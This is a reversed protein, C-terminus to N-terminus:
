RRNKARQAKGARKAKPQKGKPAGSRGGRGGASDNGKKQNRPFQSFDNTSKSTNSKSFRKPGGFGYKKNKAERGDSEGDRDRKRKGSNNVIADLEEDNDNIGNGGKENQNKRKKWQKVAELTEKKQQTRQKLKEAQIEKAVKRHAQSKKREEVASIKKQEYILKDKVKAMHADSKLMEAFYDEPRKYAVGEKLLREKALRVSTLTNNYFAVERKLDDHVNELELPVKCTDLTEVWALGKSAQSAEWEAVLAEMAAVNNVGRPAAAGGNAAEQEARMQEEDEDAEDDDDDNADNNDGAAFSSLAPTELIEEEAATEARVLSSM